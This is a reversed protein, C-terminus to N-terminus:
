RVLGIHVWCAPTPRTDAGPVIAGWPECRGPERPSETPALDRFSGQQLPAFQGCLPQGRRDLANSLQDHGTPELMSILGADAHIPHQMPQMHVAGAKQGMQSPMGRAASLGHVLDADPRALGRSAHVVSQGAIIGIVTSVADTSCVQHAITRCSGRLLMLLPGGLHLVEQEIQM